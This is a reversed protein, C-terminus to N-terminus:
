SDHKRNLTAREILNQAHQLKQNPSINENRADFKPPNIPYFAPGGAYRQMKYFGIDRAEDLTKAGSGAEGTKIFEFRM